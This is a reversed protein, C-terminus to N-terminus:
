IPYPYPAVKKQKPTEQVEVPTYREIAEKLVMRTDPNTPDELYHFGANLRYLIDMNPNQALEVQFAMREDFPLAKKIEAIDDYLSDLGKAHFLYTPRKVEKSIFNEKEELYSSSLSSPDILSSLDKMDLLQSGMNIDDELMERGEKDDPHLAFRCVLMTRERKIIDPNTAQERLWDLAEIPSMKAEFNTKAILYELYSNRESIFQEGIMAKVSLLALGLSWFFDEKKEQATQFKKDKM